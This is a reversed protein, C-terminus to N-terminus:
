KTIQASVMPVRSIFMGVEDAKEMVAKNLEYISVNRDLFLGDIKEKLKHRFGLYIMFLLRRASREYGNLINQGVQKLMMVVKTNSQNDNIYNEKFLDIYLGIESLQQFIETCVACFEDERRIGRIRQELPSYSNKEDLANKPFTIFLILVAKLMELSTANREANLGIYGETLVDYYADFLEFSYPSPEFRSYFERGM